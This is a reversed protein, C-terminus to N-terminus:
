FEFRKLVWKSSDSGVCIVKYIGKIAPVTIEILDGVNVSLMLQENKTSTLMNSGLLKYSFDFADLTLKLTPKQKVSMHSDYSDLRDDRSTIMRRMSEQGGVSGFFPSIVTQPNSPVSRIDYSANRFQTGVSNIGIPGRKGMAGRAGMPGRVEDIYKEPMRLSISKLVTQELLKDGDKRYEIGIFSTFQSLVGLSISIPVILQKHLDVKVEDIQSGAKGTQIHNILRVGALRHIPYGGKENYIEVTPVTKTMVEGNVAQSYEVSRIPAASFLYFTNVDNEYLVPVVDPVLRFPGDTVVNIKNEKQFKRVSQQSKLFLSIIKEQLEDDNSAVFEAKGHGEEALSMVLQKSVNAGIGISFVNVNPNSRVLKVVSEVNSIGGDTLIIIVGPKDQQKIRDYADNMVAYLETGGDSRIKTIWDIAQDKVNGNSIPKFLEFDSGFHYVDFSAMDPLQNVFIMAGDKANELDKGQMSGSRDIILTYHIDEPTARRVTDFDPVINLMTAFMYQPDKVDKWLETIAVSRQPKRRIVINVDHDLKEIDVLEFKVNHDTKNSLHMLDSKSDVSELGDTMFIQGSVSQKYPNSAIKPTNPNHSSPYNRSVYRPMITLPIVLRLQSSDIETKLEVSYKIEINIKAFRDVNGICCSFVDGENQNLMFASHGKSIAENYEQKAEEKEKIVTKVVKDGIIAQFQYVSASAPTPFKYFIEAPSNGNEYSQYVCFEAINNIVNVDVNVEKLPIEINAASCLLMNFYYNNIGNM